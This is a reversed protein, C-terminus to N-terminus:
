VEIRGMLGRPRLLIILIFIVLSVIIAYTGFMFQAGIAQVLGIIIGALLMGPISGMGGLVVVIFANIAMPLGMSPELPVFTLMACGGLATVACGIGFTLAYIHHVNIGCVAAAERNQGVSRITNGLETRNLLRYLGFVLATVIPILTIRAQNLILFGVHITNFTYGTTVSRIDPSFAMLGMNSLVLDFGAMLMLVGLPEVVYARERVFLPRVIIYQVLYGCGFAAPVVILISLYPDIGWLAWLYYGLYMFLMLIAGHAFNIVRIIGFIISLGVAIVAYMCGMQIGVVAAAAVFEVM